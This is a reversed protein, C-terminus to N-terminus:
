TFFPVRAKGTPNMALFAPSQNETPWKVEKVKLAVGGHKATILVKAARPHWSLCYFEM